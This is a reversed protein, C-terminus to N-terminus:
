YYSLSALGGTAIVRVLYYLDMPARKALGRAVAVTLDTQQWQKVKQLDTNHLKQDRIRLKCKVSRM